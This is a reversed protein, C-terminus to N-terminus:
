SQRDARYGGLPIMTVVPITPEEAGIALPNAQAAWNSLLSRTDIQVNPSPADFMPAIWSAIFRAGAGSGVIILDYATM